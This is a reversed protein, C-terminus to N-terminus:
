QKPKNLAISRLNSSISPHLFPKSITSLIILLQFQKLHPSQLVLDTTPRSITALNKPTKIMQIKQEQDDYKTLGLRDNTKINYSHNTLTKIMQIKQRQDQDDDLLSWVPLSVLSPDKPRSCNCYFGNMHGGGLGCVSPMYVPNNTFHDHRSSCPDHIDTADYWSLFISPMTFWM